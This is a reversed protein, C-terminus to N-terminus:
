SSQICLTLDLCGQLFTAFFMSKKGGPHLEQFSSLNYVTNDIIVWIDGDTTHQSIESKSYQREPEETM